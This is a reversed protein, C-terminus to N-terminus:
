PNQMVYTQLSGPKLVHGGNANASCLNTCFGAIRDQNTQCTTVTGSYTTCSDAAEWMPLSGGPAYCSYVIVKTIDSPCACTVTVGTDFTTQSSTLTYTRDASNYGGGCHLTAVERSDSSGGASRCTITVAYAAADHGFIHAVWNSLPALYLAVFTAFFRFWYKKIKQAM